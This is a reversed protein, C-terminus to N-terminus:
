AAKGKGHLRADQWDGSYITSDAYTYTTNRVETMSKKTKAEIAAKIDNVWQLQQVYEPSLYWCINILVQCQSITCYRSCSFQKEPLTLTFNTNNTIHLWMLDLPYKEMLQNNYTIVFLDNFLFCTCLNNTIQIPKTVPVFPSSTTYQTSIQLTGKKLPQRQAEM